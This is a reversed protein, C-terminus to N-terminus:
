RASHECHAYCVDQVRDCNTSCRGWDSLQRCEARCERAEERCRRRCEYYLERGQVLQVSSKDSPLCAGGTDSVEVGSCGILLSQSQALGVSDPRATLALVCGITIFARRM